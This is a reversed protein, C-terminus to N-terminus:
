IGPNIDFDFLTSTAKVLKPCTVKTIKRFKPRNFSGTVTLKSIKALEYNYNESVKLM